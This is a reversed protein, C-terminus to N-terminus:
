VPLQCHRSRDGQQCPVSCGGVTNWVKARASSYTQVLVEVLHSVLYDLNVPVEAVGGSKGRHQESTEVCQYSRPYAVIAGPLDIKWWSGGKSRFLNATAIKRSEVVVGAFAARSKTAALWGCTPLGEAACQSEASDHSDATARGHLEVVHSLLASEM